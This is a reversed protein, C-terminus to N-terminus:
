ATRIICNISDYYFAYLLLFYEGMPGSILIDKKEPLEVEEVKGQCGDIM